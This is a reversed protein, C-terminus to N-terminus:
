PGTTASISALVAIIVVVVGVAIALRSGSIERSQPEVSLRIRAVLEERGAHFEHERPDQAKAEPSFERAAELMAAQVQRANFPRDDASKELLDFVVKEISEPCDAFERVSPPKDQLHQDFLQAYDDGLFVKRATLMEFM